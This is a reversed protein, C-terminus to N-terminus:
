LGEVPNKSPVYPFGGFNAVNGFKDRCTSEVKNCGPYIDFDSATYGGFASLLTITDGSHNVILIREVGCEIYGGTWYGNSELGISAHSIQNTSISCDAVAVTLVYSSSTVGCSDDFLAYPCGPTYRRVPIEGRTLSASSEVTLKAKRKETEFECSIVRGSFLVTGSTDVIQLALPTAPNRAAFLSAPARDDEMAISIATNGVEKKFRSRSIPVATFTNGGYSYNGRRNTYRWAQAETSFVYLEREFM